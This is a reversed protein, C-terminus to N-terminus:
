FKFSAEVEYTRPAGLFIQDPYFPDSWAAYRKDTVNRVRFALRTSTATAFMPVKPLDIFAFLDATTYALLKVTNADTSWRDGVHRVSFGLEVPWWGPNLFRYSGGGNVIVAPINPPTNGSFSGGGALDYDAYRARVYAVNGWLKTEPTPRVAAALEIGQSKVKGALNLRQGAQASYVNNREIDFASFTWEARGNWTLQKVGAEYSRSDSLTLNQTPSLIFISDASIDTATAYQSYFTTGPLAWWTTGIRGTLPQWSKSYPFGSRVVGDKDISNRDLTFPNYRLGGVLAFTDTLKLRDELNLAVSDITATQMQTTLSGFVGQDFGVLPVTDHFFNAAGPRSFDTHSSEVSGVLRNALGFISGNWTVDTVNGVINHNHHVFFRERDIPRGDKADANFASVENNYWDRSANYNYIQSRLTVANNLDWEFGSRVWSEKITKHGDVVNYNTSLTCRDITVAGLNSGNYDSIKTGSVIGSTANAGSFSVPVLPTGEYPKANYDKFEAAVFTRFSDSPRYNLQGSVHVNKFETEDIFGVEKTRSIDFRYDLGKVTTSGGSGFGSRFSGRQDFGIFAENQVPGTYPRKTVFNITGGVAGQGSSLSSPGKLFEVRDLNFTEMTLATFGTPGINIGNYLVNVQNGQFGRMAYGVDNPADGASVGTAGKVADVTTHYGQERLTEAGIVEITAPVERATLGLRSGTAPTANGNLPTGASASSPATPGAAQSPATQPRTTRATPRVAQTSSPTRRAAPRQRPADVTVDPLLTDSAARKDQAGATTMASCGAVVLGALSVSGWFNRASM